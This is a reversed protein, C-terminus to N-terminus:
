SINKSFTNCENRLLELINKSILMITKFICFKYPPGFEFSYGNLSNKVLKINVNLHINSKIDYIFFSNSVPMIYKVILDYLLSQKNHIACYEIINKLENMDLYVYDRLEIYNNNLIYNFTSCNLTGLLLSYMDDKCVFLNNFHNFIYEFSAIEESIVCKIM